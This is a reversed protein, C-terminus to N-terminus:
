QRKFDVLQMAIDGGEQQSLKVPLPFKDPAYWASLAKGPDSRDVRLTQFRGAPVSVSGDKSIQFHETEVTQRVAVPLALAGSKGQQLNWGIALLLLNHDVMGPRAPYQQVGKGEDVSVQGQAWDVTMQRHRHKFATQMRYHYETSEPGGHHWRFQSEENISAALLAAMGASGDVESTYRYLGNAGLQLSLTATGLPQGGRTVQYHAVFGQSPQSAAVASCALTLGALFSLVQIRSSIAM